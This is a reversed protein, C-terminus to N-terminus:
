KFKVEISTSYDNAPMGSPNNKSLLVFGNSTKPVNFKIVATFPVFNETMWEGDAQAIGQTITKGSGDMLTVPFEAEFFWNGRAKGKIILPSKVLSGKKPEIVEIGIVEPKEGEAAMQDYVDSGSKDNNTVKNRNDAVADNANKNRCEGEPKASLLFGRKVWSGDVCAWRDEESYVRVIILVALAIIIIVSIAVGTNIKTNV